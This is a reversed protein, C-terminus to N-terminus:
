LCGSDRYQCRENTIVPVRSWAFCLNLDAGRILCASISSSDIDAVNRFLVPFLPSFGQFSM